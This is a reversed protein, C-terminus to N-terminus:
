MLSWEYNVAPSPFNTPHISNEGFGNSPTSKEDVFGNLPANNKSLIHYKWVEILALLSTEVNNLLTLFTLLIEYYQPANIRWWFWNPHMSKSLVMLPCWYKQCGFM